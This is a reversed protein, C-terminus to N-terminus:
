EIVQTPNMSIFARKIFPVYDREFEEVSRKSNDGLEHNKVNLFYAISVYEFYLSYDRKLFPNRYLEFLRKKYILLENTPLAVYNFFPIVVKELQDWGNARLHIVKEKTSRSLTSMQYQRKICELLSNSLRDDSIQWCPVLLIVPTKKELRQVEVKLCGDAVHYFSLYDKSVYVPEGLTVGFKLHGDGEFFGILQQDNIVHHTKIEQIM